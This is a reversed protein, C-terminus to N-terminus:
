STVVISAAVLFAVVLPSLMVGRMLTQASKDQGHQAKLISVKM